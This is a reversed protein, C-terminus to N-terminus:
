DAYNEQFINYAVDLPNDLKKVSERTDKKYQGDLYKECAAIIKPTEREHILPFGNDILFQEQPYTESPIFEVSPVGLLASERVMTGGGTVVLAAHYLVQALNNINQRLIVQGSAIESGFVKSLHDYQAQNRVHAIIKRDDTKEFLAPLIEILLTEHEAMRNMHYQATSAETRAIIYKDPEVGLPQLTKPDPEFHQLWAVEDIGHFPHIKSVDCGLKTFWELPISDPIILHDVFPFSLKAVGVSRPEDNFTINPIQLGFCIRLAEPSALAFLCSIEEDKVVRILESLRNAYAELKGLHTNGGHAGVKIYPIGWNDLLFYTADFNRATVLIDHEIALKEYLPRLMVVTKPECIDFWVKM